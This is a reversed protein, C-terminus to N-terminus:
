LSIKEAFMKFFVLLPFHLCVVLLPLCCHSGRSLHWKAVGLQHQSCSSRAPCHSPRLEPVCLSTWMSVPGAVRARCAGPTPLGIRRERTARLPLAKVQSALLSRSPHLRSAVSSLTVDCRPCFVPSLGHWHPFGSVCLVPVESHLHVPGSCPSPGPKCDNQAHKGTELCPVLLLGPEESHNHPQILESAHLM